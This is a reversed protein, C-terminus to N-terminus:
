QAGISHILCGAPDAEVDLPDKFFAMSIVMMIIILGILFVPSIPAVILLFFWFKAIFRKFHLFVRKMNNLTKITLLKNNRQRKICFFM